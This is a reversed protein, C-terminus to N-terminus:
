IRAACATNGRGNTVLDAIVSFYTMFRGERTGNDDGDNNYSNGLLHNKRNGIHCGSRCSLVLTLEKSLNYQDGNLTTTSCHTIITSQNNDVIILLEKM